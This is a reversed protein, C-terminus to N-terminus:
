EFGIDNLSDTMNGNSQENHDEHESFSNETYVDDALSSIGLHKAGDEM